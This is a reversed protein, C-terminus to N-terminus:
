RSRRHAWRRRGSASACRCARRSPTYGRVPVVAASPRMAMVQTGPAGPAPTRVSVTSFETDDMVASSAVVLTADGRGGLLATLMQTGWSPRAVTVREIQGREGLGAAGVKRSEVPIAAIGAQLTAPPAVVALELKGDPVVGVSTSRLDNCPAGVDQATREPTLARALLALQVIGPADAGRIPELDGLVGEVAAARQGQM